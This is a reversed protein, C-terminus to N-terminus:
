KTPLLQEKFKDQDEYLFLTKILYILGVMEFSEEITTILKYWFGDGFSTLWWGGVMEVGLAGILYLGTAVAIGYKINKPLSSYFKFFYIVVGIVVLSMPIVWAFYLAGSTNFLNRVPDILKEHLVFLEDFAMALFLIVLLLWKPARPDKIKKEFIWIAYFIYSSVLILLTNFITPVNQENDFDFMRLAGTVEIQPAFNFIYWLSINILALVGFIIYLYIVIKHHIKLQNIEKNKM